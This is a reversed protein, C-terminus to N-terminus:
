SIYQLALIFSRARIKLSFSPLHLAHPIHCIHNTYYFTVATPNFDTCKCLLSPAFLYDVNNYNVVQYLRIHITIYEM